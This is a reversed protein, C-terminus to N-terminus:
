KLINIIKPTSEGPMFALLPDVAQSPFIEIGQKRSNEVGDDGRHTRLPLRLGTRATGSRKM